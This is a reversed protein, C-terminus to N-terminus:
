VNAVLDSIRNAYRQLDDTMDQVVRELRLLQDKTHLESSPVGRPDRLVPYVPNPKRSNTDVHNIPHSRCLTVRNTTETDDTEVDRDQKSKKGPKDVFYQLDKSVIQRAIRLLPKEINYSSLASISYFACVHPCQCLEHVCKPDVERDHVDSFSACLVFPV